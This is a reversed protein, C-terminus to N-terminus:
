ATVKPPRGRRKVPRGGLEDAETDTIDLVRVGKKVDHFKVTVTAGTGDPIEQGSRDSVFVEKRAM